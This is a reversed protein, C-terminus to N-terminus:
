RSEYKGGIIKSSKEIQKEIESYADEGFYDILPKKFFLEMDFATPSYYDIFFQLGDNKHIFLDILISTFLKHTEDEFEDSYKISNLIKQHILDMSIDKFGKKKM